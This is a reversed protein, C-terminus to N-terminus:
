FYLHPRQGRYPTGDPAHLLVNQYVAGPPCDAGQLATALNGFGFEGMDFYARYFWNPDNDHYPVFMESMAIEYAVERFGDDTKHGVRNLITGQRPDFRLHFHWGQWDIASGEMTFNVGQPRSIAVPKLKSRMEFAGDHFEAADIEHPPAQRGEYSDVIEVIRGQTM